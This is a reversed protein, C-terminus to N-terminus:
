GEVINILKEDIKLEKSIFKKIERSLDTEEEEGIVIKEIKEKDDKNKDRNKTKVKLAKIDIELTELNVKGDISVTFKFDNFKEELLNKCNDELRRIVFSTSTQGKYFSEQKIDFEKDIANHIERTLDKKSNFIKIIPTLMIALVILSLIFNQYKKLSNEPLILEVAVIFISITTLTVVFEKLYEM